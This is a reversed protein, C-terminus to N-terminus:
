CVSFHSNYDLNIIINVQLILSGLERIQQQQQHNTTTTSISNNIVTHQTNNTKYVYNNDISRNSNSNNCNANAAKHLLQNGWNEGM